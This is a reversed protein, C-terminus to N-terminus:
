EVNKEKNKFNIKFETELDQNFTISGNLQSILSNVLMLGLTEPTEDFNFNEPIGVGDDSVTLEYMDGRDKLGVFVTGKNDEPFAYKLSNSVLENIIIGCPIGMEINMFIDDLELIPMIQSKKISYSDFITLVLKKIYESMNIHSLDNSMYLKEHVMAMSRIRNQSDRLLDIMEEDDLHMAQLSLLSSIIQMNNKVRHHVEQLLIEKEQVASKLQEETKIHDIIELELKKIVNELQITRNEVMEELHFQYNKLKEETNKREISYQISRTMFDNSQGKILYDQAGNQIAYIAIEENKLGTLIIIPVKKEHKYLKLFSEIGKSDPLGLDLLIVNFDNNNNLQIIGDNLTKCNIIQFNINKTQNLMDRILHIDANNDEILLVKILKDSM